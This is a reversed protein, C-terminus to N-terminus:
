RREWLAKGDKDDGIFGGLFRSGSVVKVGVGSFLAVAKEEFQPDVLLVSKSPEPYYGYM